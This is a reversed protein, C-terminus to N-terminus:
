TPALFLAAIGLYSLSHMGHGLRLGNEQYHHRPPVLYGNWLIFLWGSALLSVVACAATLPWYRRHFCGLLALAGLTILYTQRGLIALGLFAGALAGWAVLQLTSSSPARLATLLVIVFLTFPLLAPLETLALGSAPWLFPVALLSTAQLFPAQVDNTRRFYATLLLTTLLLCAFNIWRIPPARFGTLPAALIQVAPYLPGAASTNESSALAQKWGHERIRLVGQLHASEDYRLESPSLFIMTALLGFLPILILHNLRGIEQQQVPAQRMERAPAPLITLTHDSATPKV